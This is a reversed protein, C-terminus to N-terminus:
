KFEGMVRQIAAQMNAACLAYGADNPHNNDTTYAQQYREPTAGDGLISIGATYVVNGRGDMAACRGNQDRRYVDGAVTAVPYTPTTTLTGDAWANSTNPAWGRLIVRAGQGKALDLLQQILVRNGRQGSLSPTGDNPTGATLVLIDPKVIPMLYLGRAGYTASNQGGWGGRIHSVKKGGLQNIAECARYIDTKGLNTQGAGATISDGVDLLVVAGDECLAEIGAIPSRPQVTTSSFTGPNTAQDGSQQRMAWYAAGKKPESEMWSVDYSNQTYNAYSADIYAYVLVPYTGPDDASEQPYVPIWASYAASPQNSAQQAAITVSGGATWENSVAPALHAPISRSTAAGTQAFTVATTLNNHFLIRVMTPKALFSHAVRFTMGSVNNAQSIAEVGSSFAHRRSMTSQRKPYGAIAAFKLWESYSM